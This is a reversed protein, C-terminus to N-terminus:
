FFFGGRDQSMLCIALTSRNLRQRKLKRKATKQSKKKLFHSHAAAYFSAKNCKGYLTVLHLIKKVNSYKHCRQLVSRGPRHFIRAAIVNSICPVGHRKIPNKQKRPLLLLSARCETDHSM